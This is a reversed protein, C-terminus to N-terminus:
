YSVVFTLTGPTVTIQTIEYNARIGYKVLEQAIVTQIATTVVTASTSNIQQAVAAAVPRNNNTALFLTWEIATRNATVRPTWVSFVPISQTGVKYSFTASAAQTVFNIRISSAAGYTKGVLYISQNIAADSVSITRTRAARVPTGPSIGAAVLAFMLVFAILFPRKFMKIM